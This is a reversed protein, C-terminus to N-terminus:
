PLIESTNPSAKAIAARMVKMRNSRALREEDSLSLSYGKAHTRSRNSLGAHDAHGLLELNEIRNDTKCGNIHHVDEHRGLRRGLHCEMVFRHQKISRRGQATLVRGDIYGRGNVWWSELKANHGGNKKRACPASCYASISKRPRFVGGCEACNRDVLQRNRRGWTDVMGDHPHKAKPM